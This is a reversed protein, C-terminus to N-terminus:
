GCIADCSSKWMFSVRSRVLRVVFAVPARVLAVVIEPNIWLM